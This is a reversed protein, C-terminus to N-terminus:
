FRILTFVTCQAGLIELNNLLEHNNKLSLKEFTILGQEKLEHLRELQELEQHRRQNAKVRAIIGGKDNQYVRKSNKRQKQKYVENDKNREHFARAARRRAERCKNKEKMKKIM